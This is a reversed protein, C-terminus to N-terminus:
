AQPETRAAEPRPLPRLAGARLERAPTARGDVGPDHTAPLFSVRFTTGGGLREHVEVTGGMAEAQIAVLHLGLGTGRATRTAETGIRYFADFIRQREEEPIGPGRDCVELVPQGGVVRTRVLIRSDTGRERDVAPPSAPAYKRANEVLNTLISRVADANLEVLPLSEDPAFALDERNGEAQELIGPLALEVCQNLDAPRTRIPNSTLRSKALVREVLTELRGTERLIRTYYERRKDDAGVWGDHLMEGYLRIATLPTRLEHTVAAVFNETRRAQELDRHVSRMLLVMGTGLSLALMAAVGFFRWSQRWFAAELERTSVAVRLTGYDTRASDSSLELDLRTVLRIPSSYAVGAPPTEADIPEPARSAAAEAPVGPSAVSVAGSHALGPEPGGEDDDPLVLWMTQHLVNEAEVRPLTRFLWEPDIAFGQVIEVGRGYAALCGQPEDTLRTVPEIVVHRMAIVRPTGDSERFLRLHLAFMDVTVQVNALEPHAAFAARVEEVQDTGGDAGCHNYAVMPLSYGLPALDNKRAERRSPSDQWDAVIMRRLAADLEAELAEGDARRTISGPVTSVGTMPGEDFDYAFWSLLGEPALEQGLPSSVLAPALPDGSKPFYQKRYHYFPRHNESLFLMGVREEIASSLRRAADELERPVGAMRADHDRRLERWHLGGLIATPLVLLLAYLVLPSRNTKKLQVM